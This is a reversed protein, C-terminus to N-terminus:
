FYNHDDKHINYKKIFENKSFNKKLIFKNIFKIILNIDINLSKSIENFNKNNKFYPILENIDKINNKIYYIFNDKLKLNIDSNSIVLSELEKQLNLQFTGNLGDKQKEIQLFLKNEHNDLKICTDVTGLLYSSGRMGKYNNKGSHHIFMISTNFYKKIIDFNYLFEGMDKSSNEDFGISAKSLTDLVILNIPLDYQQMIKELTNIMKDINNKDSFSIAEIPILIFPADYKLDYYNHWAKIRDSIGNIGEGICYIIIGNNDTKQNKWNLNYALHLTIDISVFTKGTGSDGYLIILSNKPIIDQILWDNKKINENLNNLSFTEFLENNIMNTENLEM